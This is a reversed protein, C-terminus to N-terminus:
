PPDCARELATRGLALLRTAAHVSPPQQFREVDIAHGIGRV